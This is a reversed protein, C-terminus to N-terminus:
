PAVGLPGQPEGALARTRDAIMADLGRWSAEAVRQCAACRRAYPVIELRALPIAGECDECRGYTGDALRQLAQVAAPRVALERVAAADAAM